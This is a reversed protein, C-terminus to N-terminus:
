LKEENDNKSIDKTNNTFDSYIVTLKADLKYFRKNKVKNGVKNERTRICYLPVFEPPYLNAVYFVYEYETKRKDTESRVFISFTRDSRINSVERTKCDCYLVKKDIDYFLTVKLGKNKGVFSCHLSYKRINNGM